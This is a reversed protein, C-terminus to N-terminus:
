RPAPLARVAHLYVDTGCAEATLEGLRLAEALKAVGRGGASGPAAAGGILVPAVFVHLEDAAGADLFAGHVAAGGEVLVHTMRRRGLEVLVDDVSLAGDGAPLALVEAGDAAWGALRGENGAATFVLVPVERATDRLKCREPLRGSATLVVRTAARPGPPRATLLPDDAEVTGRGVVVADVVGRLEHVRRRSEPGSIWQSDGTRTATKGDLSAAWKLHVWPRGTALLKLYAANQRRAEAECVGVDAVVGAERLRALGGGAVRPFPDAMAAVVRTVGAALVADTCPPTKGHHCCPELTVVLTGGRAREGADALAYVEAHPGGFHRHWGVGVVTGTADLVVAGVLPNPEVAGRGRAALALAHRM